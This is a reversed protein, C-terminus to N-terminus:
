CSLLSLTVGPIVLLTLDNVEPQAHHDKHELYTYDQSTAFRIKIIPTLRKQPVLYISHNTNEYTKKM